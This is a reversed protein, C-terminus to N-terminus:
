RATEMKHPKTQEGPGFATLAMIALASFAAFAIAFKQHPTM